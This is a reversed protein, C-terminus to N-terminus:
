FPFAFCQKEEMADTVLCVFGFESKSGSGMVWLHSVLIRLKVSKGVWDSIFDIPEGKESWCRTAKQSGPMNLKFKVLPPKGEQKKVNSVFGFNVEDTSLTKGLLRESHETIYDIAWAEFDVFFKELEDNLRFVINQRMATEDKDHNGPSFPSEAPREFTHSFRENDRLLIASKGGRQNINIGAISLAM